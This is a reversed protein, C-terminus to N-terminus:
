SGANLKDCDSLEGAFEVELGGFESHRLEFEFSHQAAVDRAIHLGLGLGDPNRTRAEDGRFRREPLLRLEEDSIGPGDDIVRLRFRRNDGTVDLIIAVNGGEENYRVANHTVNSVAQELLTVDGRACTHTPPVAHEVSIKRTRAIPLHRQAVREVLEGLDIDDTRMVYDAGELKSVASLNSLISGLYHAENAAAVVLSRTESAANGLKNGLSTLHGQLVTLPIMVDHTTNAVFSRLGAESEATRELQKRVNAGADNFARALKGIEDRGKAQVAITYGEAASGSVEETLQRIRAVIPAAAVLAVIVFAGTLAYSLWWWATDREQENIWASVYIVAAAGADDSTFMAFDLKPKPGPTSAGRRPRPRGRRRFARRDFDQESLPESPKRWIYASSKSRRLAKRLDAPFKPARRNDSVFGIDYAWLAAAILPLRRRRRPTEARPLERDRSREDPRQVTGYGGYDAAIFDIDALEAPDSFRTSLNAALSEVVNERRELLSREYSSARTFEVAVVLPISIAVITLALKPRLNM